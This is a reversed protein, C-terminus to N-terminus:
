VAVVAIEMDLMGAKRQGHLDDLCGDRQLLQGIQGVDANHADVLKLDDVHQVEAPALAIAVHEQAMVRVLGIRETYAILFLHGVM